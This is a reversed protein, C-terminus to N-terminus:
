PAVPEAPEVAPVAPTTVNVTEAKSADIATDSGGQNHQKLPSPSLIGLAQGALTTFAAIAIGQNHWALLAATGICALVILGVLWILHKDCLSSSM